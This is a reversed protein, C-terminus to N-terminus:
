ASVRRVISIGCKQHDMSGRMNQALYADLWAKIFGRPSSVKYIGINPDFFYIHRGHSKYAGVAHGQDQGGAGSAPEFVLEILLGDGIGFEDEAQCLTEFTREISAIAMNTHPDRDNNITAPKFELGKASFLTSINGSRVYNMQAPAARIMVDRVAAQNADDDRGAKFMKPTRSFISNSGKIKEELWDATLSACIGGRIRNYSDYDWPVHNVINGALLAGPELLTMNRGQQIKMEKTAFRKLNQFRNQGPM